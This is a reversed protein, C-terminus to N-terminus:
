STRRALNSCSRKRKFQFASWFIELRKKSNSLFLLVHSIISTLEKFRFIVVKWDINYFLSEFVSNRPWPSVQNKKFEPDCGEWFWSKISANFNFSMSEFYNAQITRAVFGKLLFGDQSPYSHVQIYLFNTIKTALFMMNFSEM